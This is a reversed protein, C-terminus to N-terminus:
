RRSGHQERWACPPIGVHRRFAHAMAQVSPFGSLRAVTRLNLGPEGLLLKAHEIRAKVIEQMVTARGAHRFRRQVTRASAGLAAAVDAPRIFETRRSDIFWLAQAVIPDGVAQRDTSHRPMLTPPILIAQKPKRGGDMLRGLLEAARHGVETYDFRIATLAPAPECVDPDDDAAVVGVDQPIRLGRALALDALARALGPRAVFIGVPLELQELWGGLMRTVKRLWGRQHAYATFTRVTGVRRGMKRLLREFFRREFSSQPNRQFGVYAYHTYGQEVLHRAATRGAESRNEVARPAQAKEQSATVLVLPIPCRRIAKALGKHPPVIVGQWDPAPHHVAFPDLALRWGAADAHRRIGRLMHRERRTLRDADLMVAIRRPPDM